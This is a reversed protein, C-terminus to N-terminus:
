AGLQQQVRTNLNKRKKCKYGKLKGFKFGDPITDTPLILTQTIGNTIWVRGATSPPKRGLRKMTESLKRSSEATHIKHSSRKMSESMNKKHQESKPKGTLAKKVALIRAEEKSIERSLALWAIRDEERGHDEYLRKHALAHEEVTLEVLNSSDNSGGM